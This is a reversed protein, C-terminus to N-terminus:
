GKEKLSKELSEFGVIAEVSGLFEDKIIIPSIAKINLRKGLEISVYPEKSQKVHVLGKRFSSLEMGYSDEDWSRAWAKLDKTHFQLDIEGLEHSQKIYEDSKEFIMERNSSIYAEKIMPSKSLALSISLAARKRYDIAEQAQWLASEVQKQISEKFVAENIQKLTYITGFFSLFIM